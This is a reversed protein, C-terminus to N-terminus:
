GVAQASPSCVTREESRVPAVEAADPQAIKREQALESNLRSHHKSRLLWGFLHCVPHTNRTNVEYSVCM